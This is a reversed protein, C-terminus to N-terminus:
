QLLRRSCGYGHCAVIRGDHPPVYGQETFWDRAADDAKSPAAGFLGAVLITALLCYSSPKAKPM